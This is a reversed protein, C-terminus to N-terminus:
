KKRLAIYNYVAMLASICVGLILAAYGRYEHYMILKIISLLWWGCSIGWAIINIKTRM